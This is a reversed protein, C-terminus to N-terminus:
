KMDKKLLSTKYRKPHFSKIRVLRPHLGLKKLDHALSTTRTRQDYGLAIIDPNLKKVLDYRHNFQQQGLMAHTVFPLQRVARLRARENQQPLYGKLKLINKDRAVVVVLQQGLRKAQRLFYRHGPHLLDFTGFALVLSPKHRIPM